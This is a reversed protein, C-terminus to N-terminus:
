GVSVAIKQTTPQAKPLHLRLVGNKVSAEIKDRDIQRSIAFKRQYDGNRYESYALTHHELAAPEVYGNISLVNNELTVNLSGAHVGPVDAVITIVDDLEYIDARPVFATRDRTREADGEVLEQKESERLELDKNAM